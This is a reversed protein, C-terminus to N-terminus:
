IRAGPRFTIRGTEAMTGPAVFVVVLEEPSVADPSRRELQSLRKLTPRM